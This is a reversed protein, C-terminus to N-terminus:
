DRPSNEHNTSHRRARVKEYVAQTRRFFLELGFMAEARARAAVGQNRRLLPNAVLRALANATLEPNRPPVLFGHEGDALIEPIVGVKTAVIPRGTAMFELTARSNAESGISTVLGIDMGRVINPLDQREGFVHVLSRLGLRDIQERLWSFTRRSEYGLLVLRVPTRAAILHRFAELAYEHGKVPDFRAIMGIVVDGAEAGIERRFALGETGLGPSFRDTDIPGYVVDVKEGPLDLLHHCINKHDLSGVIVHDTWHHHVYRNIVHGKPPDVDTRTRIVAAEPQHRHAIMGAMWAGENIHCSIIDPNFHRFITRMRKIAHLYLGPNRHNLRITADTPIGFERARDLPKGPETLLLIEEGHAAQMRCLQLCYHSAGSWNPSNLIHIIKM